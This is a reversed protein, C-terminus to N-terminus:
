SINIGIEDPNENGSQRHQDSPSSKLKMLDGHILHMQLVLSMAIAGFNRLYDPWGDALQLPIQRQGEEQITSAILVL